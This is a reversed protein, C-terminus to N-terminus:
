PPPSQQESSAQKKKGVKNLTTKRRDPCGPMDCPGTLLARKVRTGAHATRKSAKPAAKKGRRAPARGKKCAASSKKAAPAARPKTAIAMAQEAAAKRKHASATQAPESESESESECESESVAAPAPAPAHGGEEMSEEGTPARGAQPQVVAEQSQRSPKWGIGIKILADLAPNQQQEVGCDGGAQSLGCENFLNRLWLGLELDERNRGEDAGGPRAKVEASQQARSSEGRM